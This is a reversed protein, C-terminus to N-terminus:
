PHWSSYWGHRLEILGSNSSEYAKWGMSCDHSLYFADTGMLLITELLVKRNVNTNNRRIWNEYASSRVWNLLAPLAQYTPWFHSTVTGQWGHLATLVTRFGSKNDKHSYVMASHWAVPYTASYKHVSFYAIQQTAIHILSSSSSLSSDEVRYTVTTM